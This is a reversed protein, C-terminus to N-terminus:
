WGRLVCRTACWRWSRSLPQGLPLVTVALSDGSLLLGAVLLELERCQGPLASLLVREAGPVRALQLRQLARACSLTSSCGSAAEM